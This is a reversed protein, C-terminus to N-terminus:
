NSIECGPFASKIAEVGSKSIGTNKIVITKLSTSERLKLIGAETVTTGSLDLYVLRKMRGLPEIGNDTVRSNKLSLTKIGPIESVENVSQDTVAEGGLALWDINNLRRMARIDEVTLTASRADICISGSMAAKLPLEWNAPVISLKDRTTFKVNKSLLSEFIKRKGDIAAMKVAVITTLVIAIAMVTIIRPNRKISNLV